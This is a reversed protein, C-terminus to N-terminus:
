VKPAAKPAVKPAVRPAAVPGVNVVQRPTHQTTHRGKAGAYMPCLASCNARFPTDKDCKRSHPVQRAVNRAAVATEAKTTPVGIDRLILLLEEVRAPPVLGKEAAELFRTRFIDMPTNRVLYRLMMAANSAGETPTWTDTRAIPRSAM